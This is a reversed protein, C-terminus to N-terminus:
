TVRAKHPDIDELGAELTGAMREVADFCDVFRTYLPAPGLRIVDPPRFDGIVLEREILARCWRWADPHGVSVHAGRSETPTALRAGLPVLREGIRELLLDTLGVSKAWLREIGAEETVAIAADVARIAIVGPTGTMYSRIGAAPRYREGMEFQDEQGFWGWVPQRLRGQHRHAVYVFGPAGPGANLYKYTCGVALDAGWGDLDVPVAGASHALDWVVLAGQARAAATIRVADLRRGTTFHVHSLCLVATQPSLAAEIADENGDVLRLSQGSRETISQLVYRDTPFDGSIALVESRGAQHAVAASVVKFLNLTTSDCVLMQGPAAGILRGLRDGVQAPLDIWAEWGGVLRRDWEATAASIAEAVERPPRGLSNGDMYIAGGTAERVFRDRYSALPDMRDLAEAEAREM